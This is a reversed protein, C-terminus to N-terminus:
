EDSVGKSIETPADFNKKPLATLAEIVDDPAGKSRAHEILTDKSVPYDIGGLYKQIQIPNPTEAM